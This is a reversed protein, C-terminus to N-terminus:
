VSLDEVAKTLGVLGNKLVILTADQDPTRQSIAELVAIAAEVKQKDETAKQLDSLKKLAAAEVAAQRSLEAESVQFKGDVYEDGIKAAGREVEIVYTGDGSSWPETINIVINTSADIVALQKTM